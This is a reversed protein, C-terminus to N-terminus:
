TSNVPAGHARMPPRLVRHAGLNMTRDWTSERMGRRVLRCATEWDSDGCRESISGRSATAAARAERGRGQRAQFASPLASGGEPLELSPKMAPWSWKWPVKRSHPRWRRLRVGRTSQVGSSSPLHVKRREAGGTELSGSVRSAGGRRSVLQPGVTYVDQKMRQWWRAFRQSGNPGAFCRVLYGPVFYGSYPQSSGARGTRQAHYGALRWDELRRSRRM